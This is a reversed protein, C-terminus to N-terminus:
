RVNGANAADFQFDATAKGNVVKIKKELPKAFQAQWAKLTYEGDPLGAIAFKGDAGTVTVFANANVYVWCEMWSHVDCKIHYIGPKVFKHYSVMGKMAQGINFLPKSRKGAGLYHSGDINHLTNDENKFAVNTGAKVALVHPHYQCGKQAIMAPASKSNKANANAVKEVAIVVDGLGGMGGNPAIKWQETKIPKGHTCHPDVSTDVTKDPHAPTGKLTVKGTVDAHVSFTMGGLLGAILAARVIKQM